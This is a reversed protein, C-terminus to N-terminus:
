IACKEVLSVFVIKRMACKKMTRSELVLCGLIMQHHIQAAEQMRNYEEVADLMAIQM